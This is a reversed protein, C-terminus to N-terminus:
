EISAEEEESEESKAEPLLEGKTDLSERAKKYAYEHFVVACLAGVFPLVTYFVLGNIQSTGNEVYGAFSFALGIAPNCPNNAVSGGM